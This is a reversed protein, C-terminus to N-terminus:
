MAEKTLHNIYAEIDRKLSERSRAMGGIVCPVAKKRRMTVTLDTTLSQDLNHRYLSVRLSEVALALPIQLLRLLSIMRKIPIINPLVSNTLVKELIDESILTDRIITDKRLKRNSIAELVVSAFPKEDSFRDFFQNLKEPSFLKEQNKTRMIVGSLWDDERDSVISYSKLIAEIEDSM